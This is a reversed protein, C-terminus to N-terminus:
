EFNSPCELVCVRKSTNSGDTRNLFYVYPYKSTSATLGCVRNDSDYYATLNKFNSNSVAVVVLIGFTLLGLLFVYIWCSDTSQREKVPGGEIM